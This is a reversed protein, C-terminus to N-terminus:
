RVAQGRVTRLRAVPLELLRFLRFLRFLSRLSFTVSEPSTKNVNHIRMASVSARLLRDSNASSAEVSQAHVSWRDIILCSVLTNMWDLCRVRIKVTSM